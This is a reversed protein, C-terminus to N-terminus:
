PGAYVYAKQGVGAGSPPIWFTTTTDYSYLPMELILNPATSNIRTIPLLATTSRVPIEKNQTIYAITTYSQIPVAAYGTGSKNFYIKNQAVIGVANNGSVYMNNFIQAAATIGTSYFTSLDTTTTHNGISNFVWLGNSYIVPQSTANSLFTWTVGGDTSKLNGNSSGFVVNTGDSGIAANPQSTYPTQRGTWTVGDTSTYIGFFLNNSTTIQQGLIYNGNAYVLDTPATPSTTSTILSGFDSAKTWTTGDTSKLFITPISNGASYALWTTGSYAMSTWIGAISQRVASFTIGDSSQFMGSSTLAYYVGGLKYIKNISTPLYIVHDANTWTLGDTSTQVYSGTHASVFKGGAYILTYIGGSPAATSVRTWTIGDTSTIVNANSSNGVIWRTGSWAIVYWPTSGDTARATWTTGDPSSSVSGSGGVAIFQSGNWAINTISTINSTRFTWTIGDPSTYIGGNTNGVVFLSNGYIVRNFQLVGTSSALTWTIGDTSYYIGGGTNVAVFTSAAFVIDTFTTAGASRSTWTLLDTSSYCLGSGGVVVYVGAGYAAANITASFVTTSPTWTTGNSSSPIAGNAGLNGLVIYNGNLYYVCNYNPLATASPQIVTRAVWTQGDASSMIQNSSGVAVYQNTGNYAICRPISTGASVAYGWGTGGLMVEARTAGALIVSSTAGFTITKSNIVAVNYFAGFSIDQNYTWTTGDPSTYYIGSGSTVVVFNTGNWTSATLTLATYTGISRATWATGNVSTYISSASGTAIFLSNNYTVNWWTSGLTNLTWTIADSSTILASSGGVAVFVSNAYIIDNLQGSTGSTRSTWTVGDPSTYVIGLAGVAVFLSNGYIVRYFQSGGTGSAFTWTILDTSYIITGSGGVAVYKSNGYACSTITNTTVPNRLVWNTGDTSTTITGSVGVAVFNSNLYRVENLANITYSPVGVWTSGDTTKRIAGATGVAVTVTGNTATNYPSSAVTNQAYAQPLQAQSVAVPVGFDAISGLASALAPYTSKSYYKGAELWKGPGTPAVSALSVDGIQATSSFEAPYTVYVDKSGASFNVLSGGNSSSIVTTRALTTGSSTYTGLGVEWESGSASSISYYTTNGDGVAAFSQYGTVAGALTITGTGTTTTTEKVRDALVLAM